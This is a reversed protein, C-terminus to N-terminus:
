ATPDLFDIDHKALNFKRINYKIFFHPSLYCASNRIDDLFSHWAVELRPAWIIPGDSFRCPAWLTYSHPSRSGRRCSLTGSRHHSASTNQPDLSEKGKNKSSKIHPLSVYSARFEQTVLVGIFLSANQRTRSLTQSSIYISEAGWCSGFSRGTSYSALLPTNEGGAGRLKGHVRPKV